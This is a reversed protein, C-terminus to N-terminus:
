GKVGLRRVWHLIKLIHPLVSPLGLEIRLPRHCDRLNVLLDRGLMRLLLHLTRLLTLATTCWDATSVRPREATLSHRWWVM